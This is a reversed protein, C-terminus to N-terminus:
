SPWRGARGALYAPGPRRSRRWGARRVRPTLTRGSVPRYFFRYFLIPSGSLRDSETAPAPNSGAVEPNHARRASDWWTGNPGLVHRQVPTETYKWGPRDWGTGSQGVASTVADHGRPRTLSASIAVCAIRMPRSGGHRDAANAPIATRELIAASGRASRAAAVRATGTARIVNEFCPRERGM